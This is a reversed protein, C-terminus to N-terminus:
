AAQCAGREGESLLSPDRSLTACAWRWHEVSNQCAKSVTTAIPPDILGNRSSRESSPLCNAGDSVVPRVLLKRDRRPRVMTRAFEARVKALFVGRNMQKIWLALIPPTR